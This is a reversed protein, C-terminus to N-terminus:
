YESPFLVTLVRHTQRPDSPDPSGYVLERDYLDLKWFLKEGQVTVTGFGHDGYPDNDPTFRSDRAVAIFARTIFDDGRGAVGATTVVSGMLEPDMGKLLGARFRDNQAAIKVAEATPFGYEQSEAGCHTCLHPPETASIAGGCTTCLYTVERPEIDAFM